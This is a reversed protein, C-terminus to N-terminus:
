THKKFHIRELRALTQSELDRTKAKVFEMFLPKYDPDKLIEILRGMLGTFPDKPDFEPFDSL